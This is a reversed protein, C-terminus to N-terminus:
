SQLTIIKRAGGLIINSNYMDLTGGGANVLLELVKVRNYRAAHHLATFGDEDVDHINNASIADIHCEVVEVLGDRAAQILYANILLCYHKLNLYKLYLGTWTRSNVKYQWM